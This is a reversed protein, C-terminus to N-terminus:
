SSLKFLYICKFKEPVVSLLNIVSFLIFIYIIFSGFEKKKENIFGICSLVFEENSLYYNFLIKKDMLIKM